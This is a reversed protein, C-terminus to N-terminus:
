QDIRAGEASSQEKESTHYEYEGEPDLMYCKMTTISIGIGM